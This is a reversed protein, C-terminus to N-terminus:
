SKSNLPQTTIVRLVAVAISVGVTFLGFASEGMLPVLLAQLAGMSVELVGFVALALAFLMTRSKLFAPM